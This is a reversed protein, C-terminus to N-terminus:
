KVQISVGACQDGGAPARIFGGGKEVTFGEPAETSFLKPDLEADFVFDYKMWEVLKQAAAAPNNNTVSCDIRVPLKTATDVWYIRKLTETFTPHFCDAADADNSLLRRATKWAIGGYTAIIQPWDTM